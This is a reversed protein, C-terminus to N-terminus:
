ATPGGETRPDLYLFQTDRLVDVKHVDGYNSFFTFARGSADQMLAYYDRLNHAFGSEEPEADHWATPISPGRRITHARLV